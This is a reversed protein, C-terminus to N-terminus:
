PRATLYNNRERPRPFPASSLKVLALCALNTDPSHAPDPVYINSCEDSRQRVFPGSERHVTKNDMIFAEYHRYRARVAVSNKRKYM